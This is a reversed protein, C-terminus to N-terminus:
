AIIIVFVTWFNYMCIDNSHKILSSRQMQIMRLCQKPCLNCMSWHYFPKLYLKKITLDFDVAWPCLNKTIQKYRLMGLTDEWCEFCHEYNKPENDMINYFLKLGYSDYTITRCFCKYGLIKNSFSNMWHLKVSLM